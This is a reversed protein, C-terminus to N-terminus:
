RSPRVLIREGPIARYIADLLYNLTEVVCLEVLSCTRRGLGSGDKERENGKERVIRDKGDLRCESIGEQAEGKVKWNLVEDTEGAGM